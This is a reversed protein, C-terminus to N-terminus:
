LLFLLVDDPLTDIAHQKGNPVVPEPVCSDRATADATFPIGGAPAVLRPCCNGFSDRYSRQPVSPETRMLDPSILDSARSYHVNLTIIMPMPQPCDYRLDYGIRIQM